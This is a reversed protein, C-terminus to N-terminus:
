CTVTKFLSQIVFIVGEHVSPNNLIEEKNFWKWDSNEWNLKPQYGDKGYLLDLCYTHYFYNDKTYVIPTTCLSGRPLSAEERLEQIATNLSPTLEGNSNVKIAGGPFSWKGSEEVQESRKFLLFEPTPHESSIVLVGAAGKGWRGDETYGLEIGEDDRINKYTKWDLWTASPFIKTLSFLNTSNEIKKQMHFSILEKKFTPNPQIKPCINSVKNFAERYSIGEKFILYAIIVSSSRSIGEECHVLVKGKQEICKEIFECAKSLYPTISSTTDDSIPIDFYSINSNTSPYDTSACNIIHTINNEKLISANTSSKINGLFINQNIEFFDKGKLPISETITNNIINDTISITKIM